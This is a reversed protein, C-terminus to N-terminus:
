KKGHRQGWRRHLTARLGQRFRLPVEYVQEHKYLKITQRIHDVVVRCADCDALHQELERCVSPDAEGDIYVNIQELLDDCNM